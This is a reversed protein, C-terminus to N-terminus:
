DQRAEGGKQVLRDKGSVRNLRRRVEQEWGRVGPRQGAPGLLEEPLRLSPIEPHREEPPSLIVPDADPPPM